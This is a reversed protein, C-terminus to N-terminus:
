KRRFRGSISELTVIGTALAYVSLGTRSNVELKECLNTSYGEITRTSKHMIQGIEKFSLDLCCLELFELENDTFAAGNKHMLKDLSIHPHFYLGKSVVRIAEKMIDPDMGKEVYGLAGLSLMKIISNEHSYISLVLVRIQPFQELLLQITNAGNLIPMDIDLICLDVPHHSYIITLKDLLERGNSAEAVLEVDTMESLFHKLGERIFAHDDAIAIRIM